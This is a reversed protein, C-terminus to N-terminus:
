KCFRVTAQILGEIDNRQGYLQDIDQEIRRCGESDLVRWMKTNDTFKGTLKKVCARVCM